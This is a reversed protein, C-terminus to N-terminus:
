HQQQTVSHVQDVCSHSKQSRWSTGFHELQGKSHITKGSKLEACQSVITIIPGDHMTDVVSAGQAIRLGTMEMDAVGTIDVHANEVCSLVVCDKSRFLM